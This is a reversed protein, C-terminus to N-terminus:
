VKLQGMQIRINSQDFGRAHRWEFLVPALTDQYLRGDGNDDLLMFMVDATHPSPEMHSVWSSIKKFEELDVGIGEVDLYFLARELDAGGALVHYVKKFSAYSVGQGQTPWRKEVRKLMTQKKKSTLKATQLLWKCFEVESIRGTHETDMEAFQLEMIEDLLSMQLDYFQQKTIKDERDNGFLYNLLGSNSELIEKQDVDTYSGYGGVKYSMYTSVYAFEKASITGEGTVDFMQFATDSYRKPTSLIGLLVCFDSYSLLGKKGIANLVSDNDPDYAQELKSTVENLENATVETYVGAGAGHASLCGPTVANYFDMPSMMVTKGKKDLVQYSAFHHFVKDPNLNKRIRNEEEMIEQRIEVETTDKKKSPISLDKKENKEEKYSYTIAATALAAASAITAMKRETKQRRRRQREEQHKRDDQTSYQSTAAAGLVSQNSRGLLRVGQAVRVVNM